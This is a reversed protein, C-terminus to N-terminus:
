VNDNGRRSWDTPMSRQNIKDLLFATLKNMMENVIIADNFSYGRPVYYNVAIPDEIKRAEGNILFEHHLILRYGEYIIQKENM